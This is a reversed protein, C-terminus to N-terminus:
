KAHRNRDGGKKPRRTAVLDEAWAAEEPTIFSMRGVELNGLKLAGYSVRHLELVAHGCNYLMKRVMRYKGESVELTVKSKAGTAGEEIREAGLLQADFIGEQTIVGKGLKEQLTPGGVELPRTADGEVVAEYCRPVESTPALLKSTLVGDRSFLLLGTTDRDLRGVPHYQSVSIWPQLGEAALMDKVEQVKARGGLEIRLQEVAEDDWPARQGPLADSLDTRSKEYMSSIVDFPKHFKLLSPPDRHLEIGDIALTAEPSVKEKSNRVVEGDVTIRGSRFMRSLQRRSVVGLNAVEKEVTGAVVRRATRARTTARAHWSAPIVLCIGVRVWSAERRPKRQGSGPRSPTLLHRVGGGRWPSSVTTLTLLAM